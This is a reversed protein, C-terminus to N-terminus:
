AKSSTSEGLYIIPPGVYEVGVAKFHAILAADDKAVHM